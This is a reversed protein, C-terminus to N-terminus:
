ADVCWPLVRFNTSDIASFYSIVCISAAFCCVASRDPYSKIPNAEPMSKPFNVIRHFQKKHIIKRLVLANEKQIGTRPHALAESCRDFCRRQFFANNQKSFVAAPSIVRVSRPFQDAAHVFMMRGFRLQGACYAKKFRQEFHRRLVSM